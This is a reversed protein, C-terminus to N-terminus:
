AEIQLAATPEAADIFEAVRRTCELVFAIDRLMADAEQRRRARTRSRASRQSSVKRDAATRPRPLLEIQQYSM